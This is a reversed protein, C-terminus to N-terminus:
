FSYYIARGYPDPVIACVSYGWGTDASVKGKGSMKKSYKVHQGALFLRATATHQQKATVYGKAAGKYYGKVWNSHAKAESATIQSTVNWAKSATVRSDMANVPAVM